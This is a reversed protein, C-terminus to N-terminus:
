SCTCDTTLYTNKLNKEKRREKKRSKGLLELVNFKFSFGCTACARHYYLLVFGTFNSHKYPTFIDDYIGM